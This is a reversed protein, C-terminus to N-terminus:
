KQFPFQASPETVVCNQSKGLIKQNGLIRLRLDNPLEHPSAYVFNIIM